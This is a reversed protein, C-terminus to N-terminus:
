PNVESMETLPIQLYFRTLTGLESTAGITGQQAELIERALLLALGKGYEPADFNQPKEFMGQLRELPVGYGSNEVSIRLMTKVREARITLKGWAPTYRIANSFFITLVWATKAVDCSVQPLTYPISIDIQINKEAFQPKFPALAIEVLVSPKILESHIKIASM